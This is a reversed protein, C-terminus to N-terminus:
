KSEQRGLLCPGWGQGQSGFLTLIEWTAKRRITDWSNPLVSIYIYMYVYVHM